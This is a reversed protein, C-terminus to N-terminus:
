DGMMEGKWDGWTEGLTVEIGEWDGMAEGEWDRGTRVMSPLLEEKRRVRGERRRRVRWGVSAHSGFM